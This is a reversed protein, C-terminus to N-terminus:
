KAEIRRVCFMASWDGHEIADVDLDLHGGWGLILQHALGLTFRAGYDPLPDLPRVLALQCPLPGGVGSQRHLIDIFIAHRIISPFAQELLGDAPQIKGGSSIM